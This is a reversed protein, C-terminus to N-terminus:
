VARSGTATPAHRAPLRRTELWARLEDEDFAVAQAGIQFARPFTTDRKRIRWLTALSVSLAAAAERPRLLKV